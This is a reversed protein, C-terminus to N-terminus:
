SAQSLRRVTMGVGLGIALVGLGFLLGWPPGDDASASIPQAPPLRRSATPHKQRAPKRPQPRPGAPQAPGSQSPSQSQSPSESTGTEGGGGGGRSVGQGFRPSTYVAGGRRHPRPPRGTSEQRSREIPIAYETGSPSTPDVTVAPDQAAGDPVAIGLAAATAALAL